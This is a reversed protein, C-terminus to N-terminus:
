EELGMGERNGRPLRRCITLARMQVSHRTEYVKSGSSSFEIGVLGEARRTDRNIRARATVIFATMATGAKAASL